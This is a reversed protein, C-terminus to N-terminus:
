HLYHTSNLGNLQDRIAQQRELELEKESKFKFDQLNEIVGVGVLVNRGFSRCDICRLTIPPWLLSDAPLKQFM